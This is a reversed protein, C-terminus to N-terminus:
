YIFYLYKSNRRHFDVGCKMDSILTGHLYKTLIHKSKKIGVEEKNYQGRRKIICGSLFFFSYFWYM